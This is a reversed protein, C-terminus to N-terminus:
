KEALKLEKAEAKIDDETLKAHIKAKPGEKVAKVLEAATKIKKKEVVKDMAKEGKHCKVCKNEAKAAPEATFGISAVGLIFLLAVIISILRKM